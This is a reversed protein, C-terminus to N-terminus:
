RESNTPHSLINAALVDSPDRARVRRSQQDCLRPSYWQSSYRAAINATRALFHRPLAVHKCRYTATPPCYHQQPVFPATPCTAHLVHATTQIGICQKRHQKPPAVIRYLLVVINSYSRYAAPTEAICPQMPTSHLM